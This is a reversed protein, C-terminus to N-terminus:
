RDAEDAETLCQEDLMLKGVGVQDVVRLDDLELARGAVASLLEVVKDTPSELEIWIGTVDGQDWTEAAVVYIAPGDRPVADYLWWGTERDPRESEHQQEKM